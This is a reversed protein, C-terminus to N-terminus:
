IAGWRNEQGLPSSPVIPPLLIGSSLKTWGLFCTKTRFKEVFGAGCWKEPGLPSYPANPPLITEPSFKAWNQRLLGRSNTKGFSVNETQIKTSFRVEGIKKALCVLHCLQPCFHGSAFNRGDRFVRKRTSNKSSVLGMARKQAKNAIHHTRPCFQEPHFSQEIKGWFGEQIRKELFWSKPKFKQALDYRM